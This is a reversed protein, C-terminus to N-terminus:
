VNQEDVCLILSYSEISVIIIQKYEGFVCMSVNYLGNMPCQMGDIGCYCQNKLKTYDYVDDPLIYQFAPVKGDLITTEKSFELPFQRCM